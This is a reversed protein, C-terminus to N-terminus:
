SAGAVWDEERAPRPLTNCISASHSTTHRILIPELAPEFTSGGDSPPLLPGHSSWHIAQQVPRWSDEANQERSEDADKGCVDETLGSSEPLRRERKQHVEDRSQEDDGHEDNGPAALPDSPNEEDRQAHQVDDPRPVSREGLPVDKQQYGPRRDEGTHQEQEVPAVPHLQPCIGSGRPLCCPAAGRRCPRSRTLSATERGPRAEGPPSANSRTRKSRYQSGVRAHPRAGSM